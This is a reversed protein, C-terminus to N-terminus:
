RQRRKNHYAHDQCILSVTKETEVTSNETCRGRCLVALDLDRLTCIWDVTQYQVTGIQSSNHALVVVRLVKAPMGKRHLFEQLADAAANLQRSPARGGKDRIPVGGQVLNGYNDYKDRNWQDGNCHVVGSLYKVEMAVIGSPGVAVLDIEGKNNLYGKALTWAGTLRRKLENLVLEEGDNGAAWIQERDGAQHPRPAPPPSARMASRWDLLGRAKGWLRRDRWTSRLTESALERRERLLNRAHDYEELEALYAIQRAQGAQNLLTATHDSLTIITITSGNTCYQEPPNPVNCQNDSPSIVANAGAGTREVEILQDRYQYILVRYLPTAFALERWWHKQVTETFCQETELEREVWKHWLYRTIFYKQILDCQWFVIPILACSLLFRWGVFTFSQVVDEYGRFYLNDKLGPLLFNSGDLISATLFYVAIMPFVWLKFIGKWLRNGDQTM